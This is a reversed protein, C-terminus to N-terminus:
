ALCERPDEIEGKLAERLEEVTDFGYEAKVNEETIEPVVTVRIANVKVNAAFDVERTEDDHTHTRTWRIEKEDGVKMGKLGERFEEHLVTNDISFMRNEGEYERLNAINKVDALVMDGSQAGRDEEIDEYTTRYSRLMDLQREVEAETAEAPPMEIAPADFADLEAVPAVNITAVVTYESKDKVLEANEGYDIQGLPVIDLEEIMQPGAENLLRNTADALVSSRGVIGDIVPRPARGRRFGQFAYKSAIERYSASIAAEVDKKSITLTAVLKGVEPTETTVTINM